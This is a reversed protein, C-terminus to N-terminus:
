DPEALDAVLHADGLARRVADDALQRVGAIDGPLALAPAIAIRNLGIQWQGIPDRTFLLDPIQQRDENSLVRAPGRSRDATQGITAEGAGVSVSDLLAILSM